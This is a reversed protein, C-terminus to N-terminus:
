FRGEATIVNQKIHYKHIKQYITDSLCLLSDAGGVTGDLRIDSLVFYKKASTINRM